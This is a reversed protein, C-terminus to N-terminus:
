HGRSRYLYTRGNADGIALVASDPAFAMSTAGRSRPDSLTTEAEYDPLALVSVHGLSDATALLQGDPSYAVARGSGHPDALTTDLKSTAVDWVYSNGGADATALFHSLTTFAVASVGKSGPDALTDQHKYDPLDWVFARGNNDATALLQGNHSYAVWRVGTSAPDAVKAILSHTAVAWVYTRGNGDGAALDNGRTTFALSSIGKSGPEALSFQRRYGSVTWLCIHGSSDATALEQGDPSYAVSQVPRGRPETLVAVLKRSRGAWIYTHGNADATALQQGGPRYAVARVGLSAPDHLVALPQSAPAAYIKVWDVQMVVRRPISEDPQCGNDCGQDNQLALHFPTSPIFAGDGSARHVSWLRKGDLWFSVSGPLWDVAMIHWRTFDVTSPIRHGIQDNAAGIHLFEGGGHRAPNTIEAIDIEGDGPWKLQPWLLIVPAYGSGADARFRIVWRGYTQNTNYSIGGSVFGYPKQFHGILRLSGGLVRVSSKTRRPHHDGDAHPDNYVSWNNQNLRTGSFNDTFVPQGWSNSMIRRAGRSYAHIAIAHNQSGPPSSQFSVPVFSAAGIQAAQTGLSSTVALAGAAGVTLLIRRNARLRARGSLRM